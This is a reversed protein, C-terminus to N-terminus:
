KGGLARERTFNGCVRSLPEQHVDAQHGGGVVRL